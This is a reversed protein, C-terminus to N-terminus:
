KLLAIYAGMNNNNFASLLVVISISPYWQYPYSLLHFPSPHGSEPSTLSGVPVLRSYPKSLDTCRIFSGPLRLSVCDVMISPWTILCIVATCHRIDVEFKPM